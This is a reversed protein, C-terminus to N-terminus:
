LVQSVEEELVEAFLYDFTQPNSSVGICVEHDGKM